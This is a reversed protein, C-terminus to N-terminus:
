SSSGFGPWQSVPHLKDDSDMELLEGELAIYLVVDVNNFLLFLKLFLMIPSFARKLLWELLEFHSLSIFDNNQSDDWGKAEEEMSEDSTIM